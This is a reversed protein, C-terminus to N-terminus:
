SLIETPGTFILTVNAQVTPLVNLTDSVCMTGNLLEGVIRLRAPRALVKCHEARERAINFDM